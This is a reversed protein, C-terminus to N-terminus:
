LDIGSSNLRENLQHVRREIAALCPHTAGLEDALDVIPRIDNKPGWFSVSGYGYGTVTYGRQAVVKAMCFSYAREAARMWVAAPTVVKAFRATASPGSRRVSTAESIGVWHNEALLGAAISLAYVPDAVLSAPLRQRETLARTGTSIYAATIHVKAHEVLWALEPQAIWRRVAQRGGVRGSQSQSGFAVLAPTVVDSLNSNFEISAEVLSPRRKDLLDDLSLASLARENPYNIWLDEPVQTDCVYQAYRLRNCRLTYVMQATNYQPSQDPVASYTQYSQVLPQEMYSPMEASAGLLKSIGTAFLPHSWEEAFDNWPYAHAALDRVRGITEALRRLGELDMEVGLDAAINALSSRLYAPSRFNQASTAEKANSIWIVDSPLETRREFGITQNGVCAVGSSPEDLNNFGAVGMRPPRLVIEEIQPEAQGRRAPRNGFAM